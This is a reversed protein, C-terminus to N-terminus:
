KLGAAVNGDNSGLAWRLLDDIRKATGLGEEAEEDQNEEGSESGEKPGEEDEGDRNSEGEGEEDDSSEIPKSMRTVTNVRKINTKGAEFGGKRELHNKVHHMNAELAATDNTDDSVYAVTGNREESKEIRHYCNMWDQGRESRQMEVSMCKLILAAARFAPKQLEGHATVLSSFFIFFGRPTQEPVQMVDIRQQKIMDLEPLYRLFRIAWAVTNNEKPDRGEDV